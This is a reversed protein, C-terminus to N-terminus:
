EHNMRHMVAVIYHSLYLKPNEQYDELYGWAKAHGRIVGYLLDVFVENVAEKNRVSEGVAVFVKPIGSMM